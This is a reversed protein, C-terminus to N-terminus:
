FQNLKTQALYIQFFAWKKHEKFNEFEKVDIINLDQDLELLVVQTAISYAGQSYYITYM